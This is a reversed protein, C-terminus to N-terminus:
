AHWWKNSVVQLPVSKLHALAILRDSQSLFEGFAVHQKDDIFRLQVCDYKSDAEILGLYTQERSFLWNKRPRYTGAQLKISDKSITIVQQQYTFLSVRYFIVWLLGVEIGAFPLILWAGVLAWALGITMVMFAIVSILRKTQAWNASRNPTLTLVWCEATKTLKVM